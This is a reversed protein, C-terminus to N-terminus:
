GRYFKTVVDAVYAVEDDTLEPYMPLLIVRQMMAETRPLRFHGLGLAPFQHVAQGGWPLLIEVGSANLQKLLADRNEAEVEYNQFVDYRDTGSEPCPPLRLQPVAGLREHYIRAITRRREIWAPLRKLKLDLLACHLNDIRCNFSWFAIGAPTRGHNRLLRLKEALDDDDTVVAGADGFAGLLKAPYFSFCGALGWGGAKRHRVTAGLAQASDELVLLGHKDAIEKIRPLDCARGNLSVPVIAKTKATIAAEIKAPDMNHDGAIDVLVPTAGAHVIGAVTAVFTHSVTIVEDGPGIGAARYTLHLADTCNSMGVAHKTGCFAALNQEFEETQKRLILDGRSLVDYVTKMVEPELSAFHRPYNIFKVKWDM